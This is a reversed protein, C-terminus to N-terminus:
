LPECVHEERWTYIIGDRLLKLDIEKSGCERCAQVKFSNDPALGARHIRSCGCDHCVQRWHGKISRLFPSFHLTKMAKDLTAM